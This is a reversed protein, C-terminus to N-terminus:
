CFTDYIFESPGETVAVPKGVLTTIGEVPPPGGWQDADTAMTLLAAYHKRNLRVEKLLAGAAVDNALRLAEWFSDRTFGHEEFWEHVWNVSLWRGSKLTAAVFLQGSAQKAQLDEFLQEVTDVSYHEISQIGSVPLALETTPPTVVAPLVLETAVAASGGAATLGFLGGLFKLAGRRTTEM